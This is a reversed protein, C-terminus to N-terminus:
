IARLLTCFHTPKPHDCGFMFAKFVRASPQCNGNAPLLNRRSHNFKVHSVDHVRDERCAIDQNGLAM